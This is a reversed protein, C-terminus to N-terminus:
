KLAQNNAAFSKDCRGDLRFRHITSVAGHLKLYLNYVKYEHLNLCYILLIDAVKLIKRAKKLWIIVSNKM